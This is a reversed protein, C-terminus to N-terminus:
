LKGKLKQKLVYKKAENRCYAAILEDITLVISRKAIGEKKERESLKFTVNYPIERITKSEINLIKQRREEDSIFYVFMLLDLYNFTYENEGEKMKVIVCEVNGDKKAVFVPYFSFKKGELTKITWKKTEAM